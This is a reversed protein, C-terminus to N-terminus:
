PLLIKRKLETARFTESNENFLAFASLVCVKKGGALSMQEWSLTYHYHHIEIAGNEQALPATYCKSPYKPRVANLLKCNKQFFNWFRPWVVVGPAVSGVGARSSTSPSKITVKSSTEDYSLYIKHQESIIDSQNTLPYWGELQYAM